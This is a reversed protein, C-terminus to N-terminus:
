ALRPGLESEWPKPGRMVRKVSRTDWSSQPTLQLTTAASLPPPIASICM